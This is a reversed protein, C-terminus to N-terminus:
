SLRCDIFVFVFLFDFGVQYFGDFDKELNYNSIFLDKRTGLDRVFQKFFDLTIQRHLDIPMLYLRGRDNMDFIYGDDIDQIGFVFSIPPYAFFRNDEKIYGHFQRKMQFEYIEMPHTKRFFM